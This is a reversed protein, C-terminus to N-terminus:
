GPASRQWLKALITGRSKKVEPYNESRQGGNLCRRVWGGDDWGPGCQLDAMCEHPHIHRRVEGIDAPYRRM